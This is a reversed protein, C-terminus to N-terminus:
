VGQTIPALHGTARDLKLVYQEKYTRGTSANKYELTAYLPDESLQSPLEIRTKEGAPMRPAVKLKQKMSAAAPGVFIKVEEAMTEGANLIEIKEGESLIKLQPRGRIMEDRLSDIESKWSTQRKQDESQKMRVLLVILLVIAIGSILSALIALSQANNISTSQVPQAAPPPVEEQATELPPLPEPPTTPQPEAPATAADPPTVVPAAPAPQVEPVPAVAPATAATTAAAPASKLRRELLEVRREMKQIIEQQGKLIKMQENHHARQEDALRGFKANLGVISEKTEKDIIAAGTTFVFVTAVILGLFNRKM